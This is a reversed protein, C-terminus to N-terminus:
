CPTLRNIAFRELTRVGSSALLPTAYMALIVFLPDRLPWIVRSVRFKESNYYSYVPIRHTYLLFYRIVRKNMIHFAPGYLTLPAGYRFCISRAQNYDSKSERIKWFFSFCQYIFLLYYKVDHRADSTKIHEFKFVQTESSASKEM